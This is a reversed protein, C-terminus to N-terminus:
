DEIFMVNKNETDKMKEFFGVKLLFEIVKGIVIIIDLDFISNQKM